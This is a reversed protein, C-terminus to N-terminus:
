SEDLPHFDKLHPLELVDGSMLKRGLTDIMDNMHFNIFLTDNALFLGFQTLDFDIDQVNYIGRLQYVSQYDFTRQPKWLSIRPM